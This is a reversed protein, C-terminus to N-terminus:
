PKGQEFVFTGGPGGFTRVGAEHVATRCLDNM